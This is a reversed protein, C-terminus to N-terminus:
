GGRAWRQRFDGVLEVYKLLKGEVVEGLLHALRRAEAQATEFAVFAVTEVSETGAATVWESVVQWSPTSPGSM